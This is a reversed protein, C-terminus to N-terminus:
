LSVRLAIGFDAVSPHLYLPTELKKKLSVAVV